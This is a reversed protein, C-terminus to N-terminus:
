SVDMVMVNVSKLGTQGLMQKIAGPTLSLSPPPKISNFILPQKTHAFRDQKILLARKM